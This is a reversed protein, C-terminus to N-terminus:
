SSSNAVDLMDMLENWVSEMDAARFMEWVEAQTLEGLKKRALEPHREIYDFLGAGDGNPWQRHVRWLYQEVTVDVLSSLYEDDEGMTIGTDASLKRRFERYGRSGM